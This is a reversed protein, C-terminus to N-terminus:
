FVATSIGFTVVNLLAGTVVNNNLPFKARIEDLQEFFFEKFEDSQLYSFVWNMAVIMEFKRLM